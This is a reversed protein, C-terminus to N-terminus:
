KLYGMEHAHNFILKDVESVKEIDKYELWVIEEVESNPILEGIFESTYCTMKVKVGENKGDAQAVFIGYFKVTNEVINVSLEEQIERALAQFDNEGNERKGGPIYYKSKGKSRSSLIKGDKFYILALKDIEKM